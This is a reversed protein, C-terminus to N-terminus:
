GLHHLRALRPLRHNYGPRGPNSLLLAVVLDAMKFLKREGPNRYVKKSEAFNISPLDVKFM